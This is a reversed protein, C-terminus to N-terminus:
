NVVLGCVVVFICNGDCVVDDLWKFVVVVVGEGCVYGDVFVDFIKCWGEM